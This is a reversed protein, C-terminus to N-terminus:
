STLGAAVAGGLADSSTMSVDFPFFALLILWGKMSFM